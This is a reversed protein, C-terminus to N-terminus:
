VTMRFNSVKKVAAGFSTSGMSHWTSRFRSVTTSFAFGCSAVCAVISVQGAARVHVARCLHPCRAPTTVAPRPHSGLAARMPTSCSSSSHRAAPHLSAAGVWAALIAAGHIDASWNAPQSCLSTGLKKEPDGVFIKKPPILYQDLHQPPPQQHPHEDFNRCLDGYFADYRRGCARRVQGKLPSLFEGFEKRGGGVEYRRRIGERMPADDGSFERMRRM